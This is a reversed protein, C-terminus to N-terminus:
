ADALICRHLVAEVHPNDGVIQALARREVRDLNGFKQDVPAQDCGAQRGSQWKVSGQLVRCQKCLAPNKM